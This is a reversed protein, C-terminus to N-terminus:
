IDKKRYSEGKLKWLYKGNGAAEIMREVVRESVQDELETTGLNTTIITTKMNNYRHNLIIYMKEHQWDSAKETGLDDLILLPVTQFKNMIERENIRDSDYSDRIEQILESSNIFIIKTSISNYSLHWRNEKAYELAYYKLIEKGAAIALHTKGLGYGGSLILWDGNKQRDKFTKVYEKVKKFPNNKDFNLRSDDYNNFSKDKFRKPIEYCNRMTKYIKEAREELSLEKCMDRVSKYGKDATLSQNQKKQNEEKKQKIIKQFKNVAM